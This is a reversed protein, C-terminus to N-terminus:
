TGESDKDAVKQNKEITKEYVANGTDIECASGAFIKM